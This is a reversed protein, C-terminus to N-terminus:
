RLINLNEPLVTSCPKLLYIDKAIFNIEESKESGEFSRSSNAKNRRNWLKIPMAIKSASLQWIFQSAHQPNCLGTYGRRLEFNRLLVSIIMNVRKRKIRSQVVSPGNRLHCKSVLGDITTLLCTAHSLLQLQLIWWAPSLFSNESFM